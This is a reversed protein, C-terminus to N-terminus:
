IGILAPGMVKQMEPPLPEDRLEYGTPLTAPKTVDKCDITMREASPITFFHFDFHPTLYPGPPHGAAEWYMTFHNLGSEKRAGEPIDLVADAKPPWDMTATTPANEISAIPVTLGVEVVSTGKMMAWTCVQAKNVDACSGAVETVPTESSCAGALM